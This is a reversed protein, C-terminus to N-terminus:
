YRSCIYQGDKMSSIITKGYVSKWGPGGTIRKNDFSISIGSGCLDPNFEDSFNAYFALIILIISQPIINFLSEKELFKKENRIFGFVTYQTDNDVKNLELEDFYKEPNGIYDQQM